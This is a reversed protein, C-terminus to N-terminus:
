AARVIARAARRGSLLAGHVTGYYRSTHEGAFAIRGEVLSSFADFDEITAGIGPSAYAGRSFPDHLWNTVMTATPRVRAGFAGRLVEVADAAIREDDWGGIERAYDGVAYGTLVPAGTSPERNVFYPFRGAPSSLIGVQAAGPWFSREFRFSVTVVAGANLRGIARRMTTPLPPLAIEGAKLVGLPVAVVVRDCAIRRTDSRVTVGGRAVEVARVAENRGIELGQALAAVFHDYGASPIADVDGFDEDEGFARASTAHLPAGVDFEIDATLLWRSAPDDLVDPDLDRIARELSGAPDTAAITSLIRDIRAQAAWVRSRAVSKDGPGFLALDDYDFPIPRAGSRRAIPTVPNRAFGHIWGAGREVPVGASRDTWVRGGIRGRAEVVTVRAGAGVLSRACSLGAVGAGVVVVSLGAAQGPRVAFGAALAALAARRSLHMTSTGAHSGTLM